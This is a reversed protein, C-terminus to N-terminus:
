PERMSEDVGRVLGRVLYMFLSRTGVHIDASLTMGPILRFDTPVDHLKVETFAIKAKYYPSTAKGASDQSTGTIPDTTFTGESIWLVRAKAAGHEVFQFADFKVVVPDGARVFGVDRAGIDIDAQVPSHLSALSVITDGEKLVSGVSLQALNLVVADEPAVVRVLDRHRLAKDLATQATDRTNRATVLEETTTDLWGQVFADRNDYAAALEHKNAAINSQDADMSRTM